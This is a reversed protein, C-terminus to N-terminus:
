CLPKRSEYMVLAFGLASLFERLEAIRLTPLPDFVRYVTWDHLMSVLLFGIALGVSPLPLGIFHFLKRCFLNTERLVPLVFGYVLVGAIFLHDAFYGFLNHLNTEGQVNIEQFVGAPAVGFIRQGWSIEEGAMAFFALAFVRHVIRRGKHDPFRFSLVASFVSAGLLLISSAYEIIGDEDNVLMLQEDNLFQAWFGVYAMGAVICAILILWAKQSFVSAM